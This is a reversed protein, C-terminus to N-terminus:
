NFVMGVSVGVSALAMNWQNVNDVYMDVGETGYTGIKLDYDKDTGRITVNGGIGADVYLNNDFNLTTANLQARRNDYTTIAGNILKSIISTTAIVIRDHMATTSADVNQPWIDSRMTVSSPDLQASPLTGRNINTANFGFLHDAYSFTWGGFVFTIAMLIKKM